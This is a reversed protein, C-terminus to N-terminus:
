RFPLPQDPILLEVKKYQKLKRYILCSSYFYSISNHYNIQYSLTGVSWCMKLYTQAVKWNLILCRTVFILLVHHSKSEYKVIFVFFFLYYSVNGFLKHFDEGCCVHLIKRWQGDATQNCYQFCM